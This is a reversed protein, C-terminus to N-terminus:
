IKQNWLQGLGNKLGTEYAGHGCGGGPVRCVKTEMVDSKHITLYLLRFNKQKGAVRVRVPEQEIIASVTADKTASRTKWVKTPNAAVESTSSEGM